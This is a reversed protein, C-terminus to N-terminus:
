ECVAKLVQKMKEVEAKQAMAQKVQSLVTLTHVDLQTSSTPFSNFIDRGQPHSSALKWLQAVDEDSYGLEAAFKVFGALFESKM